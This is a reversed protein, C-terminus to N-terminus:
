LTRIQNVMLVKENINKITEKPEQYVDWLMDLGWRIGSLDNIIKNKFIDVWKIGHLNGSGKHYGVINSINGIGKHGGAKTITKSYNMDLRFGDLVGITYDGLDDVIVGNILVPKDEEPINDIGITDAVQLSGGYQLLIFYIKHGILNEQTRLDNNIIARARLANAWTGNPVFAMKGIIQYGDRSIERGNWRDNYFDNQSM